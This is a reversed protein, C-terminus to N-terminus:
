EAAVERVDIKGTVAASILASRFEALREINLHVKGILADIKATQDDIFESIARQEALPPFPIRIGGVDGAGIGFRTVGNASVHLQERVGSSQLARFLYSGHLSRPLCRLQALHYGCTVGRIEDVVLAPVGIDDWTESDKTLLVDGVRIAFRSIEASRATAVMFEISATIFENKYVDVYNCLLTEAEGEESKKDVSSLRIAAGHKLRKVAWHAPIQGLWPIGSDKMPVSPDLGKTVAHTILAARKEKLLEILRRKKEVLADIKGTERDLFAAIFQQETLPPWAQRWDKIFDETVRQQGAVGKMSAEGHSRFPLSLTVYLLFRRDLHPGTRLVHLETTGYAAGNTLGVALSGKGNEFCPTIKAVVLDGERFFTYGGSVDQTEVTESPDLSGIGVAEMPVFSIEGYRPPDSKPNVKCRHRARQVVWHEPVDGLWEVGSARYEPYPRWKAEPRVAISM